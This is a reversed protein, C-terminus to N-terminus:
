ISAAKLCQLMRARLAIIWVGSVLTSLSLVNAFPLVLQQM